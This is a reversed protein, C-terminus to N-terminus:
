HDGGRSGRRVPPSTRESADPESFRRDAGFDFHNSELAEKALLEGSARALLQSRQGSWQDLADTVSPDFERATFAGELLVESGKKVELRQGGNTAVAKGTFVRLGRPNAKLHYQGKTSTSIDVKGLALTVGAVQRLDVADLVVEGTVLEIKPNTIESSLVRISTEPGLRLFVGPSLLIEAKGSVTRFIEDEKILPYNGFQRVLAKRNLFVLGETYNVLGARASIVFQACAPLGFLVSVAAACAVGRGM